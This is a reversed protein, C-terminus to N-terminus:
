APPPPLLCFSRRVAAILALFSVFFALFDRFFMARSRGHSEKSPAVEGDSSADGAHVPRKGRPLARGSRVRSFRLERVGDQGPKAPADM